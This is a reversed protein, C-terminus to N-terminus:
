HKLASLNKSLKRKSESCREQLQLVQLSENPKHAQPASRECYKAESEYRYRGLGGEGMTLQVAKNIKISRDKNSLIQSNMGISIHGIRMVSLTKSAVVILKWFGVSFQFILERPVINLVCFKYLFSIDITPCKIHNHEHQVARVFIAIPFSTPCHFLDAILVVNIARMWVISVKAFYKFIKLCFYEVILVLFIHMLKLAGDELIYNHRKEIRLKRFHHLNIAGVREKHKSKKM